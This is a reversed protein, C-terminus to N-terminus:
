YYSEEEIKDEGKRSKVFVVVLVVLVIALIVATILLPDITFVSDTVDAVISMQKATDGSRVLLTAVHQGIAANKDATIYVTAIGTSDKQVTLTSPDVMATAWGDTGQVSLSYTAAAGDVNLLSVKYAVTSGKAVSQITKTTYIETAPAASPSGVVITDKTITEADDNYAKIELTYTGQATAAPIKLSLQVSNTDEKDEDDVAVLDGARGETVLGLEPISMRVYVDDMRDAGTNKIVADATFTSGAEVTLSKLVKQIELQDDTRQVTIDFSEWEIEYGNSDKLQVTLAYYDGTDPVEIDQPVEISLTKTYTTGAIVDGVKKSVEVKKGHEYRLQVEVTVDQYDIGESFTVKVPVTDGRVISVPSTSADNVNVDMAAMVNPIVALVFLAVLAIFLKKM